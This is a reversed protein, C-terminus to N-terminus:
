AQAGDRRKGKAKLARIEDTICRAKAKAIASTALKKALLCRYRDMLDYGNAAAMMLSAEHPLRRGDLLERYFKAASKSGGAMSWLEGRKRELHCIRAEIDIVSSEDAEHM